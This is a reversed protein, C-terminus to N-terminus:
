RGTTKNDTGQVTQRKTKDRRWASSNSIKVDEMQALNKVSKDSIKCPSETKYKRNNTKM